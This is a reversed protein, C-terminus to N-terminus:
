LSLAVDWCARIYASITWTWQDPSHQVFFPWGYAVSVRLAPNSGDGGNLNRVGKSTVVGPTSVVWGGLENNSGAMVFSPVLWGSSQGRNVGVAAPDPWVSADSSYVEALYAGWGGAQWGSLPVSTNHSAMMSVSMGIETRVLIDRSGQPSVLEALQYTVPLITTPSDTNSGFIDVLAQSWEYVPTHM